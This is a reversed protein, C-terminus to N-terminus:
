GAPVNYAVCEVVGGISNGGRRIQDIREIM